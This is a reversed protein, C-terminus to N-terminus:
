VRLHRGVFFMSGAAGFALGAIVFGGLMAWAISAFPIISASLLMMWSSQSQEVWRVVYEYGVWLLGFSFIASLLGILMGEIMFPFRIFVDTAGVLKMIALEKRRNFVTVKITNSIIIVSVCALIAVILVGGVNVGTNIDLLVSVVDTSANVQYIGDIAELKEKTDSLLELEKIRIRFSGPLPNDDTLGELLFASEGLQEMQEGLAEAKSVYVYSEINEIRLLEAEIQARRQEETLYSKAQDSLEDDQKTLEGGPIEDDEASSDSSQSSEDRDEEESIQAEDPLVPDEVFAVVENQGKVYGMVSNINMTFLLAGGILLMCAVLIGITAFAMQRNARLSRFGESFLYRISGMNM